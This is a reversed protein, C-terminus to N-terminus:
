LWLRRRWRKLNLPHGATIAGFFQQKEPKISFLVVPQRSQDYSAQSNPELSDGKIVLTSQAITAEETIPKGDMTTCKVAGNNDDVNVMINRPILRFELQATTKLMRRVQDPDKVGPIELVIRDQGEAYATVETTGTGNLRKEMIELVKTQYDKRQNDM